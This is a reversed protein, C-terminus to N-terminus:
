QNIACAVFRSFYREVLTEFEDRLPLRCLRRGQCAASVPVSEPITQRKVGGKAGVANDRCARVFPESYANLVEKM